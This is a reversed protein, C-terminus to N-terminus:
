VGADANSQLSDWHTSSFGFYIDTHYKGKECYATSKNWLSYLFVGFECQIAAGGFWPKWSDWWGKCHYAWASIRLITKGQLISPTWELSQWLRFKLCDSSFSFASQHGQCWTIPRDLMRFNMSCSHPLCLKHLEFTVWLISSYVVLKFIWFINFRWPFFYLCRPGENKM